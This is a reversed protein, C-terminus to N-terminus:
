KKWFQYWKKNKPPKCESFPNHGFSVKNIYKSTLMNLLVEHYKEPIDNFDATIDVKLDVVGENTMLSFYENLKVVTSTKINIPDNALNYEM